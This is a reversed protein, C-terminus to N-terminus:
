KGGRVADILAESPGDKPLYAVAGASRMAAEMDSQHHMSLGIVRCQPREGTIIRTAEIGNMIPMNIDMIVVDPATKRALDVAQRGNEAEGVVCIDAVEQVLSILGERVIRHDDVVLVRIAAGASQAADAPPTAPEVSPPAPALVATSIRPGFVSARTGQGPASAIELLGGNWQLRERINFLGFGGVTRDQKELRCTDFGAGHDVVSIKLRDAGWEELYIKAHTVGAHKVVNFLLERTAQFLLVRIDPAADVTEDLQLEIELGHKERIWRALWHLADALDGDYLIPPALEATLSRSADISQALLERVQLMADQAQPDATKNLAAAVSFKAAALLQQLHDHLVQALRRRERDEAVNLEAALARLQEAREALEATREAVRTELEERTQRAASIDQLHTVLYMPKGHADRVSATSLDVWIVAGDKRLYRKELRFAVQEGRVVAAVGAENAPWDDPHTLKAAPLGALEAASYGLLRCYADNVKLLRLDLSTLTMAVAGEDFASRFRAESERLAEEARHRQREKDFADMAYSVDAALGDLLGMQEADFADPEAAYIGLTGVAEGGCRLPFCASGRLGHRATADRWPTRAAGVAFDDNVVARNERLCAGAPGDGYEGDAEIRIEDVCGREPGAAALPELRGDNVRGIWALPFNGEDAVIECVERYMAAEDRTRVIAENARSLMAYLSSLRAIRQERAKQETIDETFIVIGGAASPSGWPRIEWRLWQAGGAARDFRDEDERLTEGALGRRHFEKWRETIEPFVDYHCRGVIEESGLRYDAAWRRSVAIYRMERDFMAIAAPAHEVFLRLRGESDALTEEARRREALERRLGDLLRANELALSVSAAFNNAFGLHAPSFHCPGQHYNFFLVGVAEDRALMPVVLVARVNWKRMHERNVREDNFADDIAVAQRTRIALVAHPEQEDNMEAGLLAAPLGHIHRVRWRDGERLSLGATDCGIARAGEELAARMIDDIGGAAHLRRHIADLARDFKEARNRDTVDLARSLISRLNGADDVLSSNYWECDIVAGDKRYNRNASFRRPNSGDQLEGSVEEVHEADEKYIWRFDEMRKGLVEEPKWGFIREAAGEWRTLRMDPGWEIVALPSHTMHYSLRQSLERIEEDARKRDTIDHAVVTAGLPKGNEDATFTANLHVFRESGDRVRVRYEVHPDPTKGALFDDIRQKFRARGEEFLYDFPNLALLEEGSYGSFECMADNVLTFRPGQPGRFDLEYIFAPAQRVLNRYKEESAKLEQELRRRDTVDRVATIVHEAGGIAVRDLNLSVWRAAGAKTKRVCEFDRVAGHAQMEAAIQAHSAADAIGLEVVNNGVLEDRAFGSLAEFADNVSVIRAGPERTLVLAFPAKDFLAAYKRESESVAAEARDREAISALLALSKEREIRYLRVYERLFGFMVALFGATMEFRAVYWTPSYRHPALLIAVM